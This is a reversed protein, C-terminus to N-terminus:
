GPYGNARQRVRKIQFCVGYGNSPSMIEFTGKSGLRNSKGPRKKRHTSRRSGGFLSDIPARALSYGRWFVRDQSRVPVTRTASPKGRNWSTVAIQEDSSYLSSMLILPRGAYKGVEDGAPKLSSAMGGSFKVERVQIRLAIGNPFLSRDVGSIDVETLLLYSTINACNDKQLLGVGEVYSNEPNQFFDDQPDVPTENQIPTGSNDSPSDTDPTGEESDSGNEAQENLYACVRARDWVEGTQAQMFNIYFQITTDDLFSCVDMTASATSCLATSRSTRVTMKEANRGNVKQGIRVPYWLNDNQLAQEPTGKVQVGLSKVVSNDPGWVRLAIPASVSSRSRAWFVVKSTADGAPITVASITFDNPVEVFTTQTEANLPLCAILTSMLGLFFRLAAFQSNM